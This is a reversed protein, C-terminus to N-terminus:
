DMWPDNDLNPHAYIDRNQYHMTIKLMEMKTKAIKNEPDMELIKLFDNMAKSPQQAQEYLAARKILKEVTATQEIEQSLEDINKQIENINNM